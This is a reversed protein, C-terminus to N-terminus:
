YSSNEGLCRIGADEAHSCDGDPVIACDFQNAENRICSQFSRLILGSGIVGFERLANVWTGATTSHTKQYRLLLIVTTCSRITHICKGGSFGLSTCVTVSDPPQVGDLCVTRFSGDNCIEVLGESPM